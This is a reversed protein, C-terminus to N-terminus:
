CAEGALRRGLDLGAERLEDYTCPRDYRRALEGVDLVFADKEQPSGIM